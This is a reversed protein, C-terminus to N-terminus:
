KLIMEIRKEQLYKKFSIYKYFYRNVWRAFKRQYGDDRNYPMVFIACGKEQLYRVRKLDEEFSTNYGILVFFQMTGPTIGCDILLNLKKDIINELNPDDFAFRYRLGDWRKIKRLLTANEKTILRVDLGAKFDIKKKSEKLKELEYLHDKYALINNDLLMVKEQDRCFETLDANKRINGEKIPVICYPCSRCCGRTIFGIAYDIGYLSYDPYVHEINYSLEKHLDIASGGVEMKRTDLYGSDSFTFIKSAYVKDYNFLPSYWEVIDGLRKHYASLKMLPLNPIRSDVAYLGIKM